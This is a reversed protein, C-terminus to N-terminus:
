LVRILNKIKKSQKQKIYIIQDLNEYVASIKLLFHITSNILVLAHLSSPLTWIWGFSPLVLGPYCLAAPDKLNLNMLPPTILTYLKLNPPIQHEQIIAHHTIKKHTKKEEEEKGTECRTRNNQSALHTMCQHRSGKQFHQLLSTHKHTNEPKVFQMLSLTLRDDHSHWSFHAKQNTKSNKLTYCCQMDQVVVEEQNPKNEPM